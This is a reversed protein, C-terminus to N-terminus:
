QEMQEDYQKKETILADFLAHALERGGRFNLHTYDKSAWQARVYSNMSNRGGMAAFTNWFTAGTQQALRRQSRLLSLVAPMTCYVGGDNHSRDSVGLILVDAGPFCDYLHDVVATMRRRYWGYDSISDSAVNLGYQMILLDYHRIRQLTRCSEGDLESLITGSSGRLSFNDVVVGHNDEFAVGIATLGATNRFLMTANTFSGTIEYQTVGAAPPLEHISTDADITLLLETHENTSYLIKLSSVEELGPYRDVTQLGISAQGSEPEFLLGSLVYKRNRNKIISHTRWGKAHHKVTPRYQAVNSAVPLFGVGRGGFQAQMRARFDAVLIDGEIFSDGLFAIRVPRGGFRNLEDLADFFRRLGTHGPSFDEIRTNSLDDTDGGSEAHSVVPPPADDAQPTSDPIDTPTISDPDALVTFFDDDAEESFIVPLDDGGNPPTRRIDSLLDVKKIDWGFIAEPLRYLGLLVIIAISLVATFRNACNERKKKNKEIVM